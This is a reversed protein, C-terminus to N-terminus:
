RVTGVFSVFEYIILQVLLNNFLEIYKIYTQSKAGIHLYKLEPM